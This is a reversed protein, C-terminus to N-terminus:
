EHTRKSDAAPQTARRRTTGEELLREVESTAALSGDCAYAQHNAEIEKLRYLYNVMLGFSQRLGRRSTDALWNIQGLCAGNSFHFRGVPDLPHRGSKERLLYRACEAKLWAQLAPQRPLDGDVEQLLARYIADAPTAASDLLRRLEAPLAARAAPDALRKEMWGAFGPIPSLTAFTKLRPHDVLLQQVVRKILFEGMSVGRLGPQANSISYFIATIAQEPALTPQTEDLLTQVNTAVERVLAVEVFILPEDPMRGHFFAYCRRDSDLRNRLDSWSKIEHVAEYRILKELLSAPASWGIRKLELFGVDFWGRFLRLLDQELALFADGRGLRQLDARLDVLAHIGHPLLNFQQLVRLRPSELSAVLQGEAATRAAPTAAETYQRIRRRVEQEDVNLDACFRELLRQKDADNSGTYFALLESIRERARTEGDAAAAAAALLAAIRDWARAPADSNVAVPRLLRKWFDAVGRAGARKHVPPTLELNM